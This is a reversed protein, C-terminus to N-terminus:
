NSSGEESSVNCIIFLLFASSIFSGNSNYLWNKCFFKRVPAIKRNAGAALMNQALWNVVPQM